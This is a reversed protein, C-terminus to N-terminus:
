FISAGVIEGISEETERGVDCARNQTVTHVGGILLRDDRRNACATIGTRFSAKSSASSLALFDLPSPLNPIM